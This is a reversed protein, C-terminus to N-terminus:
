GNSKGKELEEELETELLALCRWAAKAAHRQGDEDITGRDILHRVICDAHDLSKTRDWHLPQGPNHQDNGAKSVRAVEALALPFYDLLGRAMPTAKRDAAGTPLRPKAGKARPPTVRFCSVTSWDIGAAAMNSVFSAASAYRVTVLMNPPLPCFGYGPWDVSGDSNAVATCLWEVKGQDPDLEAPVPLAKVFESIHVPISWSFGGFYRVHTALREYSAFYWGTLSPPKQSWPSAPKPNM